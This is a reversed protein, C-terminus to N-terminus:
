LGRLGMFEPRSTWSRSIKSLLPAVDTRESELFKVFLPRDQIRPQRAFIEVATVLKKRVDEIPDSRGLGGRAMELRAHLKLRKPQRQVMRLSAM